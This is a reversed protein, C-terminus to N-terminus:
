VYIVFRVDTGYINYEISTTNNVALYCQDGLMFLCAILIVIGGMYSSIMLTLSVANIDAVKDGTTDSFLSFMDRSWTAIMIIGFISGSLLTKIFYKHNNLGICNGMWPCHHDMKLYCKNCTSCHHAREPKVTHCEFCYYFRADTTSLEIDPYVGTFRERDSDTKFIVNNLNRKSWEPDITGPNFFITLFYNVEFIESLISAVIILLIKLGRRSVSRVFYWFYGSIVIIIFAQALIAPLLLWLKGFCGKNSYM